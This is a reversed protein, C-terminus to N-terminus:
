TENEKSMEAFSVIQRARESWTYNRLYLEYSAAALKVRLQQDDILSQLAEGWSVLDDCEVLLANQKDELVEKLVPLNSSIIPKNSSLYEFMKLPSMWQATDSDKIGISVRRQYPMLLVDMMCMLSRAESYRIYGIIKLNPPSVQERLSTVSLDDGGVVYFDIEPFQQALGVIIQIGRGPYLHGFYGVKLKSKSYLYHSVDVKSFNSAADHLVRIDLESRCQIQLIDSLRQSICIVKNRRMIINQALKRIRGKEPGHTEFVHDCGLITLFLSMYFNRSVILNSNSRHKLVFYLARMAIKLQLAKVSKVYVQRITVKEDLKIGYFKAIIDPEPLENSTASFLVVNAGYRSLANCQNLVHISNASRSPVMSPSVYIIQGKVSSSQTTEIYTM